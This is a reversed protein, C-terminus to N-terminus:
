YKVLITSEYEKFVFCQQSYKAEDVGVSLNFCTYYLHLSDQYKSNILFERAKNRLLEITSCRGTLAITAPELGAEPALVM